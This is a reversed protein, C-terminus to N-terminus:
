GDVLLASVASGGCLPCECSRAHRRTLAARAETRPLGLLWDSAPQMRGMWATAEAYSSATCLPWCLLANFMLYIVYSWGTETRDFAAEMTPPIGEIWLGRTVPLNWDDDVHALRIEADCSDVDGASAKVLSRDRVIAERPTLDRISDEHESM